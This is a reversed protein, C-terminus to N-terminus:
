RKNCLLSEALREYKELCKDLNDVRAKIGGVQQLELSLATTQEVLREAGSVSAQSVQDVQDTITGKVKITEHTAEVAADLSHRLTKLLVALEVGVGAAKRELNELEQTRQTGPDVEGRGDKNDQSTLREEAADFGFALGGRPRETQGERLGEEDQNIRLM